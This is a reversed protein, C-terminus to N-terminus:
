HTSTVFVVVADAAVVVVVVVVVTTNFSDRKGNQENRELEPLLFHHLNKRETSTLKSPTSSLYVYDYINVSM